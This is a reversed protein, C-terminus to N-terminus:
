ENVKDGKEQFIKKMIFSIVFLGILLGISIYFDKSGFVTTKDGLNTYVIIGPLSGITTALAFDKFKVDSLGASYSVIKFPFLPILRLMLILFFGSNKKDFLVLDKKIIKKVVQQGLKRSIYFSIAAGIISGITTLVTGWFLGFIMGGAIVLVSDPFLLLPLSSLLALYIVPAMIGKSQIFEKIEKPGYGKFVNFKNILLAIAIILGATLIWKLLDRKDKM